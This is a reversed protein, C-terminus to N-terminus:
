SSPRSTGILVDASTMIETLTAPKGSHIEAVLRDPDAFEHTWVPRGVLAEIRQHLRDFEIRLLGGLWYELEDARDAATMTTPDPRSALYALCDPCAHGKLALAGHDACRWYGAPPPHDTM